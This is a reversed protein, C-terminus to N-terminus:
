RHGPVVQQEKKSLRASSSDKDGTEYVRCFDNFQNGDLDLDPDPELLKRARATLCFQKNSYVMLLLRAFVKQVTARLGPLIESEALVVMEAEREELSIPEDLDM